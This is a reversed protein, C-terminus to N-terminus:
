GRKLDLNISRAGPHRTSRGHGDESAGAELDAPEDHIKVTTFTLVGAEPLTRGGFLNENSLSDSMAPVAECMTTTGFSNSRSDWWSDLIDLPDKDSALSGADDDATEFRRTLTYVLVDIWGISAILSLGALRHVLNVKHGHMTMLPQVVVAVTCLLYAGPFIFMRKSVTDAKARRVPDYYGSRIRRRLIVFLVGYILISLCDVSGITALYLVNRVHM